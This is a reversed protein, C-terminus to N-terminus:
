EKAAAICGAEGAEGARRLCVLRVPKLAIETHFAIRTLISMVSDTM